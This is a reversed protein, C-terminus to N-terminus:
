QMIINQTIMFDCPQHNMKVSLKQTCIAYMERHVSSESMKVIIDLRTMSQLKFFFSTIIKYLMSVTSVPGGSMSLITGSAVNLSAVVINSTVMILTVYLAKSQIDILDFM